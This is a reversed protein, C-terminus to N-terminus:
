LLPAIAKVLVCTIKTHLKESRVMKKTVKRCQRLTQQFDDEIDPICATRYLYTACEFHHASSFKRM